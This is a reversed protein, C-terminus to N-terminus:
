FAGNQSTIAVDQSSTASRIERLLPATCTLFVIYVSWVVDNVAGGGKQIKTQLTFHYIQIPASWIVFLQMKRDSPFFDRQLFALNYFKM